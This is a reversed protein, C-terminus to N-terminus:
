SGGSLQLLVDAARIAADAAEYGKNGAAGGARAQAQELDDTTLLGFGVPRGTELAVSALARSAEGAVFDFHPTEGRIVAGLAVICSYRGSKATAMAVVGLEFAGPVWLVDVDAPAAGAATCCARAGDLLKTTILENYRSVVLAVRGSTRLRGEIDTM